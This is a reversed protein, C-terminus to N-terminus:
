RKGATPRGDAMPKRGKHILQKPRPTERVIRKVARVMMIHGAQADALTSYRCMLDMFPIRRPMEFVMTEFILPPGIPNWNHNLGLWVTSVQFPRGRVRLETWGVTIHRAMAHSWEAQTMPRGNMAYYRVSYPEGRM